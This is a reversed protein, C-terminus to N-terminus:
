EGTSCRVPVLLLPRRTRDLIQQAVSEAWFARSGARGHTALVVLDARTAEAVRAVVSAPRGRCVEGTVGVGLSRLRGIWGGLCERADRSAMELMTRSAAPLLRSAPSQRAGLTGATPVVFVLHLDAACCRALDAATEVGPAHASGGDFPALIRQCAFGTVPAGTPRILLVPVPSSAAVQQAISGFLLSRLGGRGHTCLVVLDPALEADHEVISRVV